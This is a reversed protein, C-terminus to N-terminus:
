QKKIKFKKGKDSTRAQQNARQEHTKGGHVDM